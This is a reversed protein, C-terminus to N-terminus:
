QKERFGRGIALKKSRLCYVLVAMMGYNAFSDTMYRFRLVGLGEPTRFLKTGGPNQGDGRTEAIRGYIGEQFAKSKRLIFAVLM